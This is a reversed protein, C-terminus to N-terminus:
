KAGIVWIGVTGDLSRSALRSGDPSWALGLVQDAHGQSSEVARYAVMDWMIVTGSTLGVALKKGDPSWAVTLVRDDQMSETLLLAQEGTQANWLVIMGNNAGSDPQQLSGGAALWNGDPSFALSGLWPKQDGAETKLTLLPQGTGADWIVVPALYLSDGSALREGDPSWAVVDRSRGSNDALHQLIAGSQTDWIANGSAIKSGDPSWATAKAPQDNADSTLLTWRNAGDGIQYATGQPVYSQFLYAPPVANSWSLVLANSTGVTQQSQSHIGDTTEPTPGWNRLTVGNSTILGTQDWAMSAAVPVLGPLSALTQGTSIEVVGIQGDANLPGLANKSGPLWALGAPTYSNQTQSLPQGTTVDWTTLSGTGDSVLIQNGDPSWALGDITGDVQGTFTEQAKGTLGDLLAVGGGGMVDAVALTNDKPSPFLRGESFGAPVEPTFNAIQYYTDASWAVPKGYSSISYIYRGNSSWVAQALSAGESCQYSLRSLSTGTEADWVTVSNCAAGTLLRKSDPSWSVQAYADTSLKLQLAGNQANLLSVAGSQQGVALRLSDASFALSYPKQLAISWALQFTDTRYAYIGLPTIVAALQGDPSAALASATGRGLRGAQTLSPLSTTPSLTTQPAGAATSVPTNKEGAGTAAAPTKSKESRFSCASLLIGFTILITLATKLRRWLFEISPHFNM